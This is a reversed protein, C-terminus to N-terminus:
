RCSFGQAILENMTTVNVLNTYVKGMGKTFPTATLGVVVAETKQLFETVVKRMCHAEDVFV